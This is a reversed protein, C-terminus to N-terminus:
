LRHQAVKSELVNQHGFQVYLTARAYTVFPFLQPKIENFDSPKKRFFTESLHDFCPTLKIFSNLTKMAFKKFM